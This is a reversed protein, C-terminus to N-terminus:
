GENTTFSLWSPMGVDVVNSINTFAGSSGARVRHGPGTLSILFITPPRSVVFNSGEWFIRLHLNNNYNYYHDFFNTDHILTRPTGASIVRCYFYNGGGLSDNHSKNKKVPPISGFLQQSRLEGYHFSCSPGFTRYQIPRSLTLTTASPSRVHEQEAPANYGHSRRASVESRPLERLDETATSQRAYVHRYINTCGIGHPVLVLPRLSTLVPM